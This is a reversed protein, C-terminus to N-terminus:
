SKKVPRSRAAPGMNSVGAMQVTDFPIFCINSVALIECRSSNLDVYQLNSLGIAVIMGFLVFFLGGIVPDPILVFVAGVKGLMGVVFFVIGAM